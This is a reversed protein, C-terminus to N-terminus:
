LGWYSEPRLFTFSRNGEFEAVRRLFPPSPLCVLGLERLERGRTALTARSAEAAAGAPVVRERPGSPWFPGAPGPLCLRAGLCLPQIRGLSCPAWRVSASDLGDVM